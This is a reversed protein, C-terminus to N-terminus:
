KIVLCKFWVRGDLCVILQVVIYTSAHYSVKYHFIGQGSVSYFYSNENLILAPSLYSRSVSSDNLLGGLDHSEITLISM